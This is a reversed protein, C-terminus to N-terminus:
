FFSILDYLIVYKVYNHIFCLYKAKEQDKQRDIFRLNVLHKENLKGNSAHPISFAYMISYRVLFAELFKM